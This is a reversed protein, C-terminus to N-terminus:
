RLCFSSNLCSVECTTWLQYLLCSELLRLFRYVTLCWYLNLDCHAVEWNHAGHRSPAVLWLGEVGFVYDQSGPPMMKYADAQNSGTLGTGHLTLLAPFSSSAPVECTLSTECAKLHEEVALPTAWGYKNFYTLVSPDASNEPKDLLPFIVGAQSM